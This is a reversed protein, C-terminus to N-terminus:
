KADDKEPKPQVAEQTFLIPEAEQPEEQKERWKQPQRNTLWMRMAQVDGPIHQRVEIIETRESGDADRVKFAKEMTLVEGTARRYLSAAVEADAPIKGQSVAESFAVHESLWAYFTAEEIGFIEAMEKNTMGLLALKRAREPMTEDYIPPRGPGPQKHAPLYRGKADRDAM